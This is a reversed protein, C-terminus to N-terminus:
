FSITAVYARHDSPFYPDEDLYQWIDVAWDSVRWNVGAPGAVFIHDILCNDWTMTPRPCGYNEGLDSNREFRPNTALDYTNQLKFGDGNGEVLVRYSPSDLQSNFDGTVIVPLGQEVWAGTRDMFLTASPVKNEGSNDFHTSIFVFETNSRLDLMRAWIVIRFLSFTWGMSPRDPTPSLWYWGRELVRFTNKEYLLTADPYNVFYQGLTGNAWVAEHNPLFALLEQVNDDTILEQIGILEPNYRQM